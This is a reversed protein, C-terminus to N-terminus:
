WRISAAIAPGFPLARISLHDPLDWLQASVFAEAGSLLHNAIILAFYDELHKRRAEVRATAYRNPAYTAGVLRGLTDLKVGATDLSYTVVLSDRKHARAYRLDFASKTALAIWTVEATFFMAGALPRDLVSQGYGPVMLSYLFARKPSIPPKESDPVAAAPKKTTDPTVPPRRVGARASDVQQAFAAAAPAVVLVVTAVLGAAHRVSRRLRLTAIGVKASSRSLAPKGQTRKAPGESPVVVSQM